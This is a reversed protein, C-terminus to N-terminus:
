SICKNTINYPLDQFCHSHSSSLVKNQEQPSNYCQLFIIYIHTNLPFDHTKLCSVWGLDPLETLADDQYVLTAPEMEQLYVYWFCTSCCILVERDKHQRQRETERERGELKRGLFILKFISFFVRCM